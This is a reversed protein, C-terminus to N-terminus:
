HNVIQEPTQVAYIIDQGKNELEKSIAQKIRNLNHKLGLFRYIEENVRLM